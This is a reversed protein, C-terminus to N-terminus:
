REGRGPNVTRVLASDTTPFIASLGDHDRAAVNVILIIAILDDVRALSAIVGARLPLDCVLDEREAVSTESTAAQRGGLGHRGRHRPRGSKTVSRPGGTGRTRSCWRAQGVWM